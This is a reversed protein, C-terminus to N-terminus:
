WWLMNSHDRTFIIIFRRFWPGLYSLANCSNAYYAPLMHVVCRAIPTDSENTAHSQSPPINHANARHFSSPQPNSTQFPPTQPCTSALFFQHDRGIAYLSTPHSRGEVLPPVVFQTTSSSPACRPQHTGHYGLLDHQRGRRDHAKSITPGRTSSRTKSPAPRNVAPLAMESAGKTGADLPGTGNGTYSCRTALGGVPRM